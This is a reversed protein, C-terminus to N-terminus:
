TSMKFMINYSGKGYGYVRGFVELQEHQDTVNVIAGVEEPIIPLLAMKSSERLNGKFFLSLQLILQPASELFAEM